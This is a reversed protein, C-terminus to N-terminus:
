FVIIGHKPLLDKLVYYRHYTAAQHFKYVDLEAGLKSSTLTHFEQKEREWDHHDYSIAEEEECTFLQGQKIADCWLEIRGKGHETTTLMPREAALIAFIKDKVESFPTLVSHQPNRKQAFKVLQLYLKECGELFTSLNDRVQTEGNKSYTVQWTLYPRDPYTGVAGHGLAGSFDEGLKSFLMRQLTLWWNPAYKAIFRMHKNELYARMPAAHQQSPTPNSVRNLESSIGSFGYHSFTDAYVHCAIGMLHLGYPSQSAKEIHAQMMERAIHSDKVCILQEEASTGEGGPLFHFPTWVRRQELKDVLRNKIVQSNTHATAVGYLLGGDPHPQSDSKTSDDVYQASYAITKAEKVSLGAMRALAYTGFYHMDKQM